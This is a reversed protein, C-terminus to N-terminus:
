QFCFCMNSLYMHVYPRDWHAPFMSFLAQDTVGWSWHKWSGSSQLWDQMEWMQLVSSKQQTVPGALHAVRHSVSGVAGLPHWGLVWSFGPALVAAPLNIRGQLGQIQLSGWGTVEWSHSSASGQGMFWRNCGTSQLDVRSQFACNTKGQAAM